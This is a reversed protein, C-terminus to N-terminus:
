GALLRRLKKVAVARDEGYAVTGFFGGDAKMLFTLATHDVSYDDGTTAKKSYVKWARELVKIQDASGTIGTIRNGFASLYEGLVKPSDREPDVTVFYVDIKGGDPGLDELWVSADYLTTPCIDPCHTFGFFVLHPRGIMDSRTITTGDTRLAEFPGGISGESVSEVGGKQHWDFTSWGLWSGLAVILAWLVIRFLKM